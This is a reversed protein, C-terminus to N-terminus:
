SSTLLATLAQALVEIARQFKTSRSLIRRLLEAQTTDTFVDKGGAAAAERNPLNMRPKSEM